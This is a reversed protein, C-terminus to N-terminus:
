LSLCLILIVKGCLDGLFLDALVIPNSSYQYIPVTQTEGGDYILFKKCKFSDPFARDGSAVVYEFTLRVTNNGNIYTAKREKDGVQIVLVVSNSLVTVNYTFDVALILRDNRHFHPLQSGFSLSIDKVRPAIGNISIGYSSLSQFDAPITLTADTIPTDSLRRVSAWPSPLRLARVGEFNLETCYHGYQVVYQLSIL